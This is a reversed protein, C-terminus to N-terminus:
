GNSCGPPDEDLLFMDCAQPVITAMCHTITWNGDETPASIARECVDRAAAEAAAVTPQLVFLTVIIEPGGDGIHFHEVGDEPSISSTLTRAFDAPAAHISLKTLRVHIIYM